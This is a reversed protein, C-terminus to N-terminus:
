RWTWGGSASNPQPNGASIGGWAQAGRGCYNNPSSYGQSWMTRPFMPASGNWSPSEQRTSLNNWQQFQRGQYTNPAYQGARDGATTLSQTGGSINQLKWGGTLTTRDNKDMRKLWEPERQTQKSSKPDDAQRKGSPKDGPATKEPTSAAPKTKAGLRGSWFQQAPPQDAAFLASVGAVLVAFSLIGMKGVM